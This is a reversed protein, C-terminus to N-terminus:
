VWKKQNFSPLVGPVVVKERGKQSLSGEALQCVICFQLLPLCCWLATSLYGLLSISHASLFLLLSKETTGLATVLSWPCWSFCMLNERLMLFYKTRHTISCPCLNSVSTTSDGFAEQVQDQAVKEPHGQKLLTQVLHRWLNRGIVAM